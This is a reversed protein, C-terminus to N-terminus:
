SELVISDWMFGHWTTNRTMQFTIENEGEVLVGDTDFEFEFYRWEGATTMSRYLSPDNALGPADSTLNGIQRGNAFIVSSAGSSYGALSVILTATEAVAAAAGSASSPLDFSITWNGLYTQGFCWDATESSGVRYVLAEPCSAVLAHQNPAGGHAFGYSTRDFDGVQFIRTKNSVAWDLNGLDTEAAAEAAVVVDDRLFTTTVDAISSGNSWAQLGYRAARVNAFEFAGDADAYATYYYETGMDLATKSPDSDGLFVAANTAPRGDSLVLRGRVTGRSQYAADELWAYPWSAFEQASRASADEKSGDNLYWLWPGWMKGSPFVDSSSAMFHTGHVM